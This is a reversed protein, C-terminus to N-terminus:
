REFNAWTDITFTGNEIVLFSRRWWQTANDILYITTSRVKVTEDTLTIAVFYREMHWLFNDLEKGDRQGSFTHPKPVEVRPAENTAMVLASLAIKYIAMEQRLEEENKTLVEM